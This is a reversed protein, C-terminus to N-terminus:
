LQEVIMRLTAGYLRLIDEKCPISQLSAPWACPLVLLGTTNKDIRHVLGFRPLESESLEPQQQKLYWSIGNVVTGTYNGSGPHVVMGAPKYLIIIDDDEYRIDLPLQEPIVETLEPATDSYMIIHDGPRIKYNSKVVQNNVFVFGKEIGQQLKNRTGGEMRSILFKDIRISEQGKDVTFSLREYRSESNDGDELENEWETEKPM